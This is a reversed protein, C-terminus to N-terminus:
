EFMLVTQGKHQTVALKPEENCGECSFFIRLGQRRASPNGIMSRDVSINDGEVVVHNGQKDDEARDFIEIKSQHMYTSKCYPCTLIHEQGVLLSIDTSM